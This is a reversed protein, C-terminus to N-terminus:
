SDEPTTEYNNTFIEQLLGLREAEKRVPEWWGVPRSMAYYRVLHNMDEPKSLLTVPIFILASFVMLVWFQIYDPLAPIVGYAPLIWVVLWSFGLNAIWASLYGWANFRWWIVQLINPLWIGAAMIWLTYLLWKTIQEGVMIGYLFSGILVGLTSLRGVLVLRREAARPNIYHHYIDRTFYMAGVNLSSSVSSIHIALIAAFFCGVMGAPLQEFGIRFWAMQFEEEVGIDPFMVFFAIVALAWVSNRTLVLLTGSWISYSADKVTRSSQIRQAEIFWDFHTAMGVGGIFAVVMMTFFWALPFDGSFWGTFAFPNLRWSEGMVSLREVIAAPGGAAHAGWVSVLVIVIFAIIGQQFDAMIVGWYGAAIVYVACLTSFVVMGIWIDWGFMYRCVIGMAIGIWGSIFMQFGVQWGAFWGRLLEGGLGSFRLTQWEAQTGALSRRFIRTSVFASIAAWAAFFTYWMGRLGHKYIFGSFWIPTDTATHTAYVSAATLWWHLNRFFFFFDSESRKGLRYFLVGCGVMLIIFVITWIWDLLTFVVHGTDM